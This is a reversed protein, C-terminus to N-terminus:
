RPWKSLSKFLSEMASHGKASASVFARLHSLATAPSRRPTMRVKFWYTKRQPHKRQRTWLLRIGNNSWVWGVNGRTVFKDQLWEERSGLRINGLSHLTTNPNAVFSSYFQRVCGFEAVFTGEETPGRRITTIILSPIWFDARWSIHYIPHSESTDPSILIMAHTGTASFQYRTITQPASTLHRQTSQLHHITYLM